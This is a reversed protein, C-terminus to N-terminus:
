LHFPCTFLRTVYEKTSCWCLLRAKEKHLYEHPSRFTEIYLRMRCLCSLPSSVPAAKEGRLSAAPTGRAPLLAIKKGGSPLRYYIRVASSCRLTAKRSNPSYYLNVPEPVSAQPPKPLCFPHFDGGPDPGPPHYGGESQYPNRARYQYSICAKLSLSNYESITKILHTSNHNKKIVDNSAFKLQSSHILSKPPPM